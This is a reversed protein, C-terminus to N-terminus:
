IRSRCRSSARGCPRAGRGCRASWRRRGASRGACGSGLGSRCRSSAGGWISGRGPRRRVAVSHTGSQSAMRWAISSHFCAASRGCGAGSNSRLSFGAVCYHTTTLRCPHTLGGMCESAGGGVDGGREFAGRARRQLCAVGAVPDSAGVEEYFRAARSRIGQARALRRRMALRTSSCPARRGVFGGALPTRAAAAVARAVWPRFRGLRRCRPLTHRCRCSCAM